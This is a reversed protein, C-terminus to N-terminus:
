HRGSASSLSAVAEARGRSAGKAVYGLAILHHRLLTRFVPQEATDSKFLQRSLVEDMQALLPQLLTQARASRASGGCRVTLPCM